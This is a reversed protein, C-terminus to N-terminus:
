HGAGGTSPAAYAGLVVQDLHLVAVYEEEWQFFGRVLGSAALCDPAQRPLFGSALTQAPIKITRVATHAPIAAKLLEGTQPDTAATRIIMLQKCPGASADPAYGFLGNVDIVPLLHGQYPLLGHLYLPAFPVRQIPQRNLVEVVQNQSFLFFVDHLDDHLQESGELPLLFAKVEQHRPQSAM